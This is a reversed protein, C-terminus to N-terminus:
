EGVAPLRGGTDVFNDGLNGTRVPPEQVAAPPADADVTRVEDQAARWQKHAGVTALALPAAVMLLGVEPGSMLGGVSLGYKDAVPVIARSLAQITDPTYIAPLYPLMPSLAAVLVSITDAWEQAPDVPALEGPLPPLDAQAQSEFAHAKRRLIDINDLAILAM